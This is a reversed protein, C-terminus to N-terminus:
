VIWPIWTIRISCFIFTNTYAKSVGAGTKGGDIYAAQDHNGKCQAGCWSRIGELLIWHGPDCVGRHDARLRDFWYSEVPSVEAVDEDDGRGDGSHFITLFYIDIFQQLLKILNQTALSDNRISCWIDLSVSGLVLWIQNRNIFILKFPTCTNNKGYPVTATIEPNPFLRPPCKKRSHFM